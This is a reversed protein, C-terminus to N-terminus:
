KIAFEALPDPRTNRRAAAPPPPDITLLRGAIRDPAAPEISEALVAGIVNELSIGDTAGTQVLVHNEAHGLWRGNPLQREFLVRMESGLQRQAFRARAEAALALAQASRRKKTRADVQGIMRAAATGPRSSYRFVHIGALDLSRLFAATRDWAADDEGPFGVILDAHVAVGPIARRVREVLHRYHAADYRRGMRRLITDDGSQLPIHFHPLCRGRSGSWVELLDDTIHQPEISSLRIREVDTEALIRRVLGPLGAAGSAAGSAAGGAAPGGEGAYTGANIGTLVVERHGASVARRVEALVTEAPVSREPGRAKPIICYTCHFSCGDQIKVFVRTRDIEREFADEVSGEDVELGVRQGPAIAHEVAPEVGSLSPLEAGDPIDLLAALETLLRDKSENGFLRAGPDAAALSEADVAVSCGTVLVQADPSTRRARRVAQRSKQDAISTVTCTNVVVLDAAEHAGVLEVGRARLLREVADMEAQNVKCGLNAIAARRFPQRPRAPSEAM